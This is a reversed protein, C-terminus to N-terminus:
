QIKVYYRQHPKTGEKLKTEVINNQFNVPHEM